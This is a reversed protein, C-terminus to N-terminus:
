HRSVGDTACQAHKGGQGARDRGTGGQEAPQGDAHTLATHHGLSLIRDGDGDPHREAVGGGGIAGHLIYATTVDAGVLVAEQLDTLITHSCAATSKFM